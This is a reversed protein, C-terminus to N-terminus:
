EPQWRLGLKPSFADGFDDVTYLRSSDVLREWLTAM